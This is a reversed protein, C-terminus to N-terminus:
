EHALEELRTRVKRHARFLIVGLHGVSIDLLSAIERNSLVGAMKLRVAEREQDNLSEMAALLRQRSSEETEVPETTQDTAPPNRGYLSKRARHAASARRLHKLVRNRAIRHLWAGLNGSGFQHRASLAQAFVDQTLDEADQLSGVSAYVYRFVANLHCLCSDAFGDTPCPTGVRPAPLLAPEHM